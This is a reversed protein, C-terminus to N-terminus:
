NEEKKKSIMAEAKDIIELIESHPIDNFNLNISKNDELIVVFTIERKKSLNKLVALIKKAAETATRFTAVLSGASSASYNVTYNVDIGHSKLQSIVDDKCEDDLYLRLVNILSMKIPEEENLCRIHREPRKKNTAM